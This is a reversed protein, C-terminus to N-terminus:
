NTYLSWDIDLNPIDNESRDKHKDPINVLRGMM